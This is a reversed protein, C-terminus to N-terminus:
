AILQKQQLQKQPTIQLAPLAFIYIYLWIERMCHDRILNAIVVIILMYLSVKSYHQKFLFVYLFAILTTGIIGQTVLLRKWGSSNRWWQQDEPTKGLGTYKNSSKLYQNFNAEFYKTYRNYGAINDNSEDYELRSIILQYVVNNEKNINTTILITIGLLFSIIVFLFLYKHKSFLITHAVGAIILLVYGALSFSALISILMLQLEWKRMNFKNAFLLFVCTTAVHGPELFMSCFRPFAAEYPSGGVRFLYYNTHTYFWGDYTTYHPMPIKLLYLVWGFLSIALIIGIARTICQLLKIKLSDISVIILISCFFSVGKILILLRNELQLTFFLQYVIIIFFLVAILFNEKNFVFMKRNVFAYLSVGLFIMFYTIIIPIYDMFLLNFSQFMLLLISFAFLPFITTKTNKILIM